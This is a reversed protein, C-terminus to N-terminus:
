LMRCTRSPWQQVKLTRSLLKSVLQSLLSNCGSCLIPIQSGERVKTGGQAEGVPSWSERSGVRVASFSINNETGEKKLQWQEASTKFVNTYVIELFRQITTNLM